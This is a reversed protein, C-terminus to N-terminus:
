LGTSPQQLKSSCLTDTFSFFGPARLSPGGFHLVKKKKGGGKKKKKLQPIDSM